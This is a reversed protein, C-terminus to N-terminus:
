ISKQISCPWVVRGGIAEYCGTYFSLWSRWNSRYRCMGYAAGFPAIFAAILLTREPTRRGGQKAKIKDHRYLMMVLLNLILIALLIVLAIDFSMNALFTM